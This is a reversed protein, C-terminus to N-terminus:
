CSQYSYGVKIKSKEDESTGLASEYESEITRAQAARSRRQTYNSEVKFHSWIFEM